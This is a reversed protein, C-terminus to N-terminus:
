LILGCDNAPMANIWAEILKVGESHISSRGLEPMKHRAETTNMRFLLYSKDARAPIVDRPYIVDGNEDKDSGGAVATKCVGFKAPDEDFDRNFEVRLGSDGAAGNYHEEPITLESRHCHACNIDLYARATLNLDGNSLATIDTSDKFVPASSITSKDAPAGTLIGQDEWHALQNMTHNTYEYENNLFRAKPGIPKFISPRVDNEDQRIPVVSHCATCQSALPVAYDFTMEEDNHIINVDAITKGTVIFKADSQTEWYYPLAIWGSERHILLRTEINTENVGRNATNQPISFTKVLVSGVPFEMVENASYSATEGEPVFVFRYKTAYDTFLPTSLDYPIGRESPNQTPDGADSFLNYDSLSECNETLLAQWNVGPVEQACLDVDPDPTVISGPDDVPDPTTTVESESDSGCASLLSGMLILSSVKMPIKLFNIIKM